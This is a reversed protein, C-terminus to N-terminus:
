RWFIMNKENKPPARAPHVGGPDAGSNLFTISLALCMWHLTVWEIM